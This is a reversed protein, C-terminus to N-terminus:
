EYAKPAHAISRNQEADHQILLKAGTRQLFKEMDLMSQLSQKKDFNFVPVRKYRWNDTFHALDGSLVVPGSKPLRVFLSQHGPTHGITRKIVVSGDGFVDYDGRLKVFKNNRLQAYTEPNFRFKAANPGFAAEYEEQQMLVTSHTFANGNGSHDGHMHSFAVYRIKEPPYGLAKLQALFPKKVSLRFPGTKVTAGPMRAIGDSLGTDWVLTGNKHKILYCSDTLTKHKGKDSALGTFLSIDGVDIWGCNFVYMKEITAPPTLPQSACGSLMAGAAFVVGAIALRYKRAHM